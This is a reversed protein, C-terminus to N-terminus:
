PLIKFQNQAHSMFQATDMRYCQHFEVCRCLAALRLGFEVVFVVFFLLNPNKKELSRSTRPLSTKEPVLWGYRASVCLARLSFVNGLVRLEESKCPSSSLACFFLCGRAMRTVLRHAKTQSGNEGQEEAAKAAGRRQTLSSQM